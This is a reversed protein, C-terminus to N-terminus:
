VGGKGRREIDFEDMWKYIVGPSCDWRDAMERASLQRDFYMKRIKDADQWPQDRHESLNVTVGEDRLRKGITTDSCDFKDAIKHAPMHQELYMDLIQDIPLDLKPNHGSAHEESPLVELNDYGNVWKNGDIHHVHWEESFVKNPDAGDAIACLQHVPAKEGGQGREELVYTYSGGETSVKM